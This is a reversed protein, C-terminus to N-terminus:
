RYKSCMHAHKTAETTDSKAVGPVTARRAGRGVSEGARAGPRAATHEELPDEQGLFQVWTEQM